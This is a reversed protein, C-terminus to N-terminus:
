TDNREAPRSDRRCATVTATARAAVLEALAHGPALLLVPPPKEGREGHSVKTTRPTIGPQRSWAPSAVGWRRGVVSEEPSEESASGEWSGEVALKGESHVRMLITACQDELGRSAM